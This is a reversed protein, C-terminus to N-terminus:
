GNTIEYVGRAVNFDFARRATQELLAALQVSSPMTANTRSLRSQHIHLLQDLSRNRAVRLQTLGGNGIGSTDSATVFIHGDSCFSFLAIVPPGNRCVYQAIIAEKQLYLVSAPASTSPIDAFLFKFGTATMTRVAQEATHRFQDPVQEMTLPVVEFRTDHTQDFRSSGLLKAPILLLFGLLSGGAVLWLESWSLRGIRITYNM